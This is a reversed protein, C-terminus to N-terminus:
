DVLNNIYDTKEDQSLNDWGSLLGQIFMEKFDNDLPDDIVIYATDSGFYEPDLHVVKITSNRVDLLECVKSNEPCYRTDRALKNVRAVFEDMPMNRINFIMENKMQELNDTKM